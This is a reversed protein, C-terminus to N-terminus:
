FRPPARFVGFCNPERVAWVVKWDPFAAQAQAIADQESDSQVDTFDVIGAPHELRCHWRGSGTFAARDWWTM